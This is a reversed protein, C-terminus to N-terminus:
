NWRGGGGLGAGGGGGGGGRGGWLEINPSTGKAHKMKTVQAGQGGVEEGRGEGEEGQGGRKVGM